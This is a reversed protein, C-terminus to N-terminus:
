VKSRRFGADQAEKENCFYREGTSFDIETKDYYDGGPIHYIKEGEYSINGKIQCAPDYGEAQSDKRGQEQFADNENKMMDDQIADVNDEQTRSEEETQYEPEPCASSDYRGECSAISSSGSGNDSGLGLVKYAGFGLIAVVVTVLLWMFVPGLDLLSIEEKKDTM